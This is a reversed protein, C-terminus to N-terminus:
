ENATFTLSTVVVGSQVPKGILQESVATCVMFTDADGNVPRWTVQPKTFKVPLKVGPDDANTYALQVLVVLPSGIAQGGRVHLM